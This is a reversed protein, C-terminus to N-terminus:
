KKEKGDPETNGGNGRKEKFIEGFTFSRPKDVYIDVELQNINIDLLDEHRDQDDVETYEEEEEEESLLKKLNKKNDPDRKTTGLSNGCHECFNPQKGVYEAPHGCNFCYVKM